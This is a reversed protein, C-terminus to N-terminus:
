FYNSDFIEFCVISDYFHIGAINNTLYNPKFFFQESYRANLQDIIKKAFEIFTGKRRFGGGYEVWYSSHIDEVLYVGGDNLHKFLKEFTFKQHNVRHSGDDILVDIKPLQSIINELFLSDAQSGILIKINDEEFKKCDEYIDIGYIIANSGFYKKWMQLSGGNLIGIEVIVIPRELNRFKSFHKEYIEFYHEWKYIENGKHNKFIDFLSDM